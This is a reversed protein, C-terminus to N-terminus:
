GVDLNGSSKVFDRGLSQCGEVFDAERSRVDLLQVKFASQVINSVSGVSEIGVDLHITSGNRTRFSFGRNVSFIGLVSQFRYKLGSRFVTPTYPEGPETIKNINVGVRISFTVIECGASHAQAHVIPDDVM